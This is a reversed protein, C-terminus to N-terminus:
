SVSVYCSTLGFSSLKCLLLTRSVQDFSGSFNFSTADVPLQSSAILIPPLGPRYSVTDAATLNSSVCRPVHDHSLLQFFQAYNNLISFPSTRCLPVNSVALHFSSSICVLTAVPM